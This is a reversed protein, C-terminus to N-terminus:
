KPTDLGEKMATVAAALQLVDDTILINAGEQSVAKDELLKDLGLKTNKRIHADDNQVAGALDPRYRKLGEVIDDFRVVRKKENVSLWALVELVLSSLSMIRMKEFDPTGEIVKMAEKVQEETKPDTPNAERTEAVLRMSAEANLRQKAWYNQVIRRILQKQDVNRSEMEVAFQMMMQYMAYDLPVDNQIGQMLSQLAGAYIQAEPGEIKLIGNFLEQMEIQNAKMQDYMAQAAARRDLYKTSIPGKRLFEWEFPLIADVQEFYVFATTDFVLGPFLYVKSGKKLRVLGNKGPLHAGDTTACEITHELDTNSFIRPCPM